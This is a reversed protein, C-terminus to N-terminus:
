GYAAAGTEPPRERRGRGAGGPAAGEVPLILGYGAKEVAKAIEAPTIVGPLYTVTVNETALNVAARTVGTLGRVTKEVRASCAACNMGTVPYTATELAVGYGAARVADVLEGAGVKAPDYSVQARETAFNVVATSVGPVEGLAKEVRAACVACSMQDVPIQVTAQVDGSAKTESDM